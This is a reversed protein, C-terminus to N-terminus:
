LFGGGLVEPRTKEERREREQEERGEAGTKGNELSIRPAGWAVKVIFVLPKEVMGNGGQSARGCGESWGAAGKPVGLAGRPRM